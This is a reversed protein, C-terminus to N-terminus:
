PDFQSQYGVKFYLKLCLGSHTRPLSSAASFFLSAVAFCQRHLKVISRRSMCLLGKIVMVTIAVSMILVQHCFTPLKVSLNNWRVCAVGTDQNVTENTSYKLIFSAYFPQPIICMISDTVSSGRILLYLEQEKNEGYHVRKEHSDLIYFMSLWAPELFSIIYQSQLSKTVGSKGRKSPKGTKVRSECLEIM